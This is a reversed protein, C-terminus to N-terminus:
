AHSSFLGCQTNQRLSVYFYWSLRCVVCDHRRKENQGRKQRVIAYRHRTPTMKTLTQGDVLFRRQMSICAPRLPVSCCVPLDDMFGVVVCVM